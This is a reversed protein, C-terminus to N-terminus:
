YTSYQPPSRHPAASGGPWLHVRHTQKPRRHVATPPTTRWRLPAATRGQCLATHRSPAATHGQRPATRRSPAATAPYPVRRRTRCYVTGSEPQICILARKCFPRGPGGDRETCMCHTMCNAALVSELFFFFFRLALFVCVRSLVFFLAPLGVARSPLGHASFCCSVFCFLYVFLFVRCLLRSCLRSVRSIPCVAHSSGVLRECSRRRRRM